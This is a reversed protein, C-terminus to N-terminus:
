RRALVWQWTTEGDPEPEVISATEERLLEFGADTLLRRNTEPPYSSFFM